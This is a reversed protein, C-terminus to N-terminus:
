GNTSNTSSCPREEMDFFVKLKFHRVAPFEHIQDCGSRQRIEDLIRAKEAAAATTLTFWINLPHNRLYNHTIQPYDNIIAAVPDIRDDPVRMAILVSRYGMRAPDFVAGIRRICHEDAQLRRLREVAEDPAVGLEAALAHFPQEVVPIGNQVLNLLKLDLPDTEKVGSLM